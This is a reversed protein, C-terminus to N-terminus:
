KGEGTHSRPLKHHVTLEVGTEKVAEAVRVAEEPDRCVEILHYGLVSVSKLGQAAFFRINEEMNRHPYHWIALGTKM